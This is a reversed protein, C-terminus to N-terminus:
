HQHIKVDSYASHGAFGFAAFQALIFVAVLALRLFFVHKVVGHELKEVFFQGAIRLSGTMYSFVAGTNAHQFDALNKRLADIPIPSDKGLIQSLMPQATTLHEIARDCYIRLSMESAEQKDTPVRYKGPDAPAQRPPDPYKEADWEWGNQRYLQQLSEYVQVFTLWDFQHDSLYASQWHKLDKLANYKAKGLCQFLFISVLTVVAAFACLLHHVLRLQFRRNWLWMSLGCFWWTFAALALSTLIAFTMFRWDLVSQALSYALLLKVM